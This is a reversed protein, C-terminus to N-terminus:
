ATEDSRLRYNIDRFNGHIVVCYDRSMEYIRSGIAMDFGCMRDIDYESSVMIPLNNMYRYNIIAFAQEVQFPTPEKRGKWMDDIYLMPVRQLISIRSDLEDLNDKLENFGEVWPFYIVPTGDAMLRNAVAMCLHTKGCGPDGLLSLSNKRQSRISRFDDAYAKAAMFAQQVIAPRNRPNFNDISKSQFEPTIRSQKMIRESKRWDHCETCPRWRDYGDDDKVLYGTEDKCARCRYSTTKELGDM